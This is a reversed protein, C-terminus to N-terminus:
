ESEALYEHKHREDVDFSSELLLRTLNMHVGLKKPNTRGDYFSFTADRAEFLRQFLRQVQFELAEELEDRTVIGEDVVLEGLPKKSNEHKRLFEQLESSSTAGQMVLIDGLRLGPPSSDSGAHVVEGDELVITFNEDFTAVELTGTKDITELFSLLEPIGIAYGTGRLDVTDRESTFSDGLDMSESELVHEVCRIVIKESDPGSPDRDIRMANEDDFVAMEAIAQELHRILARSRQMLPHMPNGRVGLEQIGRTRAVLGRVSHVVEMLARQLPDTHKAHPNM